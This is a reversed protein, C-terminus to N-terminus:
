ATAGNTNLFTVLDARLDPLLHLEQEDDDADGDDDDRVMSSTALKAAAHKDAAHVTDTLLAVFAARLGCLQQSAQADSFLAVLTRLTVGNERFDQPARSSLSPSLPLSLSIL